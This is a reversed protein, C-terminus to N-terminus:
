SGADAAAAEQEPVGHGVGKHCTICTQGGQAAAQHVRQAMEPATSVAMAADTHCTRCTASDTEELWAWVEEALEPRKAEYEERTDIVGLLHMTVDRAGFTAKQWLYAPWPDSLLHCDKCQAQVGAANKFHVNDHYSAEPWTMEHCAICFANSSTQKVLTVGAGAVALGGIGGVILGIGAIVLGRKM